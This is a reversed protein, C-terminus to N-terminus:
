KGARVLSVTEITRDKGALQEDRETKSKRAALGIADSAFWAQSFYYSNAYRNFVLRAEQNLKGVINNTQLLVRTQGKANRIRVIRRDSTPNIYSVRYEGAPLTMNGVHFEFPVKAILEPSGASQAQASLGITSTLIAAAVINLLDRKM